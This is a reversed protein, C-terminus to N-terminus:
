SPNYFLEEIGSAKSTGAGADESVAALLLSSSSSGPETWYSFPPTPAADLAWTEPYSTPEPSPSYLFAEPPEPASPSCRATPTEAVKARRRRPIRLLSIRRLVEEVAELRDVIEECEDESITPLPTGRNKPVTKWDKRTRNFTSSSFAGDLLMTAAAMPSLGRLEAPDAEPISDQPLDVRTRALKRCRCKCCSDCHAARSLMSVTKELGHITKSCYRYLSEDEDEGDDDSSSSSSFSDTAMAAGAAHRTRPTWGHDSLPSLPRQMLVFDLRPRLEIIKQIARGRREELVAVRRVNAEGISFEDDLDLRQM